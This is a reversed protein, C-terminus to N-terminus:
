GASRWSGGRSQRLSWSKLLHLWSPLSPSCIKGQPAHGHPGSPAPGRAPADRVNPKEPGIESTGVLNVGSNQILSATSSGPLVMMVGPIQDVLWAAIILSVSSGALPESAADGGSEAQPGTHGEPVFNFCRCRIANNSAAHCALFALM